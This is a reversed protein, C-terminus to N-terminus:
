PYNRYLTNSYWVNTFNILESEVPSSIISICIVYSNKRVANITTKMVFSNYCKTFCSKFSIIKSSKQVYIEARSQLETQFIEKFWSHFNGRDLEM